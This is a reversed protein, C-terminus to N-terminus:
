MHKSTKNLANGTRQDEDAQNGCAETLSAACLLFQKPLNALGIAIHPLKGQRRIAIAGVCLITEIDHPFGISRCVPGIAMGAGLIGPRPIPLM